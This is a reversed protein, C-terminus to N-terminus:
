ITYSNQANYSYVTTSNGLKLKALRNYNDYHYLDLKETGTGGADGKNIILDFESLLEESLEEPSVIKM